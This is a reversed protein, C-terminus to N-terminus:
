QSHAVSRNKWRKRKSSCTNGRNSCAGRVCSRRATLYSSRPFHGQFFQENVTVNKQGVIVNGELDIHVIKDVLLFPYRHPLIQIIEKIDLVVSPTETM